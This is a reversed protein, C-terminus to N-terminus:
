PLTHEAIYDNILAEAEVTLEELPKQADLWHIHENRKFWSLQRKAYRRTVQQIQEVATELTETGSLVGLLEKYGIAQQATLSSRYGQELLGEVEELLGQDIMHWVRANIREYLQERPLNMGLYIVPFVGRSAAFGSAQEAYSSEQELWEFARVVRRVNHPHILAASEPDHAALKAHFAEPGLRQAEQTLHERLHERREEGMEGEIFDEVAARIYLGTGGCLIPQKDRAWIDEFAARAAKKYIFANCEGDPAVIDVCHYAVSRQDLPVKATGIDMGRYVQMSDASVVEGDHACALAEALASKGTATPGVVAIIFRQANRASVM